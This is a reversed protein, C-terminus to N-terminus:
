SMLAYEGWLVVYGLILGLLMKWSVNRFYWLISMGEMKMLALGSMSAFCFLCSGMATAYSTIKWYAGNEVFNSMYVVDVWKSLGEVELLPYMSHNTVAMIFPDIVSSLAGTVVGMVWVNHINYDCWESVLAFVGTEQIVGMGLVIAMVFLMLQISGYENSRAVKRFIMQDASLLKRNFMENVIWLVALVCMAGLFPALKTISHFTPIFWLGGIGLFLMVCRQWVNLNTDDGRYPMTYTEVDLTHPLARSLLFTPIVFAVIAPLALYLSFDSATVAGTGWFLLGTPDGIVTFCGGATAAIFIASGIIMRQRRSKVIGRMIVLMMTTTTLTDLNASILFTIPTITWLFRQSNRTKIWSSIFDFCGNNHLIEIITMTSLLFLVLTAAKGVYKLFISDYIFLKVTTGDHVDGGLFELYERPYRDTVFDTGYSIYIVWGLTCVFMAIAAKNINTLYSTGIAFYAMVLACLIILTLSEM